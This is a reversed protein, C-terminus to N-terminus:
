RAMNQPPMQQQQPPMFNMQQPPPQQQQQQMKNSIQQLNQTLLNIKDEINKFQKNYFVHSFIDPSFEHTIGSRM